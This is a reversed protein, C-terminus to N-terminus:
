IGFFMASFAWRKVERRKIWLQYQFSINYRVHFYVINNSSVSCLVISFNFVWEIKFQYQFTINNFVHCVVILIISLVQLVSSLGYAKMLEGLISWMISEFCMGIIILMVDMMFFFCLFVWLRVSFYGVM